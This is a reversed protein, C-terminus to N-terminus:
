GGSHKQARQSLILYAASGSAGVIGAGMLNMFFGSSVAIILVGVGVLIACIVRLVGDTM